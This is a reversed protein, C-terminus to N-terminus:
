GGPPDCRNRRHIRYCALLVVLRAPAQLTRAYTGQQPSPARPKVSPESDAATGPQM